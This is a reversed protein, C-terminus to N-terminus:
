VAHVCHFVRALLLVRDRQVHVVRGVNLRFNVVLLPVNRQAAALEIGFHSAHEFDGFPSTYFALPEKLKRIDICVLILWM